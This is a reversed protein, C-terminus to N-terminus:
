QGFSYATAVNIGNPHINSLSNEGMGNRCECSHEEGSIVALLSM